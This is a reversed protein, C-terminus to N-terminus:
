INLMTYDILYYILSSLGSRSCEIALQQNNHVQFLERIKELRKDISKVSKWGAASACRKRTVNCVVHSLAILDKEDLRQRLAPVFATKDKIFDHIMTTGLDADVMILSGNIIGKDNANKACYVKVWDSGNFILEETAISLNRQVLADSIYCRNGGRGWILCDDTKGIISVPSDEGAAEAFDEAVWTYRHKADKEFSFDGKM